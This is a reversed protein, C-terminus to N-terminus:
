IPDAQVIADLVTELSSQLFTITIKKEPVKKTRRSSVIEIGAPIRYKDALFELAQAAYVDTMGISVTKQLLSNDKVTQGQSVGHLLFLNLLLFLPGFVLSRFVMIRM